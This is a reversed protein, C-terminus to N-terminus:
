VRKITGQRGSKVYADDAELRSGFYQKEGNIELVWRATSAKKQRSCNCM